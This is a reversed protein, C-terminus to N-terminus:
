SKKRLEPYKELLGLSTARGYVLRRSICFEKSLEEVNYKTEVFRKEFLDREIKKIDLSNDRCSGSILHEPNCCKRNKCKHRIVTNQNEEINYAFYMLRHTKKPIMYEKSSIQGYGDIDLVGIYEWCNNQTINIRKLIKDKLFMIQDKSLVRYLWTNHIYANDILKIYYNERELLKSEDCEEIIGYWSNANWSKGLSKNEYSKTNLKNLHYIMRKYINSSSGIYVKHDDTFIGYVGIKDKLYNIDSVKKTNKFIDM